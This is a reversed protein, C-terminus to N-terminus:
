IENRRVREIYADIKEISNLELVVCGLQHFRIAERGQAGMRGRTTVKKGTAKCEGFHIRAPLQHGTTYTPWIIIRDMAGRRGPSVFKRTTGGYHEVERHLYREISSERM